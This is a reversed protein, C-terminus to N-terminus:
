VAPIPRGLEDGSVAAVRRSLRKGLPPKRGTSSQGYQDSLAAEYVKELASVSLEWSYREEVMRRANRAIWLRLGPDHLLRVLREAFSAAGDAIMLHRGNQATLGGMSRSTAVVPAGCAMAELLKNQMGSGALLPSIAVTARHLYETVAPVYGTVEVGPIRALERVRPPPDAGVIQFRVSPVSRRILPLVETAFWVAADANPFYAIRGTFVISNWERLDQRYAFQSTDVGNPVVYVSESAGIAQMDLTSCVVMRDYIGALSREYRKLRRAEWRLLAKLPRREREARRNFNLSLADVLDIVRTRVNLASVVPAMRVLQVHALDYERDRTERSVADALRADFWYLTQLPLRTFPAKCLAALRRLRSVRLPVIRECLGELSTLHRDEGAEVPSVLTIRHQRSLLRIQHYARLRDGQIPPYPLRATVFLINM